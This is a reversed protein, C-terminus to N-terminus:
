MVIRDRILNRLTKQAMSLILSSSGSAASGNTNSTAIWVTTGTRADYLRAGFSVWPRKVTGGGIPTTSCSSSSRWTSCNTVYTPPVYTESVGASTPSLVLTADIRHETLIAQIESPTYERGPFLVTHAPIFATGPALGDPARCEPDCILSGRGAEVQAAAQSELTREAQQMMGLDQLEAVVLIRRYVQGRAEPAVM